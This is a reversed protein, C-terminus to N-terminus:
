PASRSRSAPLFRRRALGLAALGALVLWCTSPEPLPRSANFVDQLEDLSLFTDYFRAGDIWGGWGDSGGIGALGDLGIRFSTMGDLNVGTRSNDPGSILFTDTEQLFTDVYQASADYRLAVFYWEDTAMSGDGTEIGQPGNKIDLRLTGLGDSETGTNRFQFRFLNSSLITQHGGVEDASKRVMATFTFDDGPMYFSPPSLYNSRNYEGVVDGLKLDAPSPPAVLAVGGTNVLDMGPGVDSALPNPGEHDYKALLGPGYGTLSRYVDRLQSRSFSGRIFRADDIWGGFADLSGIGSLNDAGLRFQTMDNLYNPGNITRNLDAAFFVPSDPQLYGQIQHTTANYTLAAFYWENTHFRGATGDSSGGAGAGNVDLRLRGAGDGVTGTDQYQFRFRNTGLITQHGGTEDANKRVFALFTFDEDPPNTVQPVDLGDGGARTYQGVTTGLPFTGVAGPPAVFTTGGRNVANYGHGTDDYLPNANEHSFRAALTEAAQRDEFGTVSLLQGSQSRYEANMWQSSRAVNSFRFEDLVGDWPGGGSGNSGIYLPSNNGFGSGHNYGATSSASDFFTAWQGNNLTVGTFHWNGDYATTGINKIQNLGGSTDVRASMGNTANDRQYEVGYSAHNPDKGHTRQYAGNTTGAKMWYSLTITNGEDLSSVGSGLDEARAQINGAKQFIRAGGIFGPGSGVTGNVNGNQGHGSSDPETATTSNMHWVGVYGNSWVDAPSQADTAAANGYYMRFHDVGSSQDVQPVKVWIAAQGGVSDYQEIEYSLVTVGDRDAFRLDSGDPKAKSFDFNAANLRVLVPFDTLNQTGGSNVLRLHSVYQWQDAPYPDAAAWSCFGLGLVVAIGIISRRRDFIM